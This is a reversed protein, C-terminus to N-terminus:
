AGILDNIVINLDRVYVVGVDGSDAWINNDGVLTEVEQGTLTYTQPTALPYVIQIPNSALYTRLASIDTLDSALKFYLQNTNAILACTGVTGWTSAQTVETMQNSVLGALERNNTTPKLDNPLSTRFTMGSSGAFYTEDSSGDLTLFGHTVTLAGSVVDLTGGYVTRGLNVTTTSSNPNYPQYETATSGVEIQINKFTGAGAVYLKMSKAPRPLTFTYPLVHSGTVMATGSEDTIAFSASNIASDWSITLTTAPLNVAGNYAYGASSLTIDPANILNKGSVDVNVSEWGSIPRVNDPSPTGSGAQKPVIEATCSKMPADSGDAFSAIAGSATGTVEIQSRMEDLADGVAKADAAKGQETLTDDLEVGIRGVPIKHTGNTANDIALYDGNQPDTQSPLAIIRKTTLAM